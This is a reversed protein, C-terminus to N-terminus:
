LEIPLPTDIPLDDGFWGHYNRRPIKGYHEDRVGYIKGASIDWTTRRTDSMYFHVQWLETGHVERRETLNDLLGFTYKITGYDIM